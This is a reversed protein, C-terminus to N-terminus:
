QIPSTYLLRSSTRLLWVPNPNVSRHKTGVEEHDLHVELMSLTKKSVRNADIFGGGQEDRNSVRGQTEEAPGPQVGLAM